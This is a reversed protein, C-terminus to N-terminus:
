IYSVNGNEDYGKGNWKIDLFYEGEYELKGKVYEKGRIKRDYLFEGDFELKGTKINYYKGNGNKKGDKYEAEVIM